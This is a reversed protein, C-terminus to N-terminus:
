RERNRKRRKLRPIRVEEDRIGLDNMLQRSTRSIRRLTRGIKMVEEPTFQKDSLTNPVHDM